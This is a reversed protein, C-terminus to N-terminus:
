AAVVAVASVRPTVLFEVVDDGSNSHLKFVAEYGPLDKYLGAAREIDQTAIAVHHFGHNM